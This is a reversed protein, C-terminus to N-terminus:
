QSTLKRYQRLVREVYRQTESYPPIGNYRDVAGPGANYGALAKRVQYPDNQYKVLLDRLYRAGADVNEEINAPDADLEKATGPMLQMIGMAGKPSVADQRYGSEVAAVSHVFEPPLGNRLAAQTVLERPSPQVVATSAAPTKPEEVSEEVEFAAIESSPLETVAQGDYLRVTNGAHEHRDIRLRFGTSFIAYEGALAPISLFACLALWRIFSTTM